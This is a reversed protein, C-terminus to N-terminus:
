AAIAACLVAWSKAADSHTPVDCVSAERSDSNESFRSAARNGFRATSALDVVNRSPNWTAQCRRAHPFDDHSNQSHLASTIAPEDPGYM